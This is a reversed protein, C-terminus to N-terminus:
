RAHQTCVALRSRMQYIHGLAKRVPKICLFEKGIYVAHHFSVTRYYDCYAFSYYGVVPFIDFGPGVSEPVRIIGSNCLIKFM